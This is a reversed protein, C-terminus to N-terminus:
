KLLMIKQTQSFSGAEMRVFYIGSPSTINNMNKGNWHVIHNGATKEQNLLLAAERGLIDYITIKINSESPLTYPINVSSNFPNPYAAGLKFEDAIQGSTSQNDDVDSVYDIDYIDVGSRNLIFLRDEHEIPKKWNRDDRNLENYRTNISNKYIRTGLPLIQYYDLSDIGNFSYVRDNITSPFKPIPESVNESTYINVQKTRYEVTWGYWEQEVTQYLSIASDRLLEISFLYYDVFNSTNINFDYSSILFLSLPNHEVRFVRDPCSILIRDGEIDMMTSTGYRNTYELDVINEIYINPSTEDIFDFLTLKASYAGIKEYLVFINQGVIGTTYSNATGLSDIDHQGVIDFNGNDRSVIKYVSNETMAFLSGDNSNIALITSEELIENSVEIPEDIDSLSIMKIKNDNPLFIYDGDTAMFPYSRNEMSYIYLNEPQDINSIDNIYLVGNSPAIIMLENVVLGNLYAEYYNESENTSMYVPTTPDSLDYIDRGVHLNDGRIYCDRHHGNAEVFSVQEQTEILFTGITDNYSSLYIYDQSACFRASYSDITGTLSCSNDLNYIEIRKNGIGLPRDIFLYNAFMKIDAQRSSMDYYHDSFALLPANINNINYVWASITEHYTTGQLDSYSTVKQFAAILLNNRIKLFHNANCNDITNILVPNDFNSIDVIEITGSRYNDIRDSFGVFLYEGNYIVTNAEKWHSPNYKHILAPNSPDTIDLLDVGYLGFAVAITTENIITVDQAGDGGFDMDMYTSRYELDAFSPTSLAFLTLITFLFTFLIKMVFGLQVNYANSITETYLM